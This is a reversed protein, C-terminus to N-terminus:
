GRKESSFVLALTFFSTKHGEALDIPNSGMNEASKWIRHLSQDEEATQSRLGKESKNNLGNSCNAKKTVPDWFCERLIPTSLQLGFLKDRQQVGWAGGRKPM